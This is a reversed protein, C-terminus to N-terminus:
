RSIELCVISEEDRLLLKGDVLVPAQRTPGCVTARALEQYGNRDVKALILEGAMSSMILKGDALIANCKGFRPKRWLQQGDAAAVAVLHTVPGAGGVNDFGYIVGASALPTQWESRLSSKVGLSEWVPKAVYSDSTKVVELLVSGHDEGASVLVRGGVEIPNATNCSYDTVFAYSWLVAGSDHAIGLVQDGIVAVVQAENGVKLLGPSSYGAPGNGAKWVVQGQDLSVGVVAAHPAGVQVVVINGVVLPSCSMGYESPTGGLTALLDVQWLPKGSERDLSVLQGQGSYALVSNGVITPTSRPGDGQSNKYPEAIPQRWTVEGSRLDLALAYQADADQVLTFVTSKAVALGSMGGGVKASWLQKPGALPFNDLLDVSASIGNRNAGLFQPWESPAQGWCVGHFIGLLVIAQAVATQCYSM